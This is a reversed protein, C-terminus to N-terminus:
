VIYTRRGKSKGTVRLFIQKKEISKMINVGSERILLLLSVRSGASLLILNREVCIVVVNLLEYANNKCFVKASVHKKNTASFVFLFILVLIFCWIFVVKASNFFFRFCDILGFSYIEASFKIWVVLNEM